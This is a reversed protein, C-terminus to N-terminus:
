REHSTGPKLHHQVSQWPTASQGHKGPPPGRFHRGTHTIGPDQSSHPSSPSMDKELVIQVSLDVYKVICNCKDAGGIQGFRPKSNTIPAVHLGDDCDLRVWM